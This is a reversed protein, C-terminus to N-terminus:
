NNCKYYKMNFKKLIRRHKNESKIMKFMRGKGNRKTSINETTLIQKEKTSREHGKKQRKVLVM